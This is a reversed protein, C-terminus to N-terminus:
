FSEKGNFFLVLNFTEIPNAILDIFLISWISPVILNFTQNLYLQISSNRLHFSLEIFNRVKLVSGEKVCDIQIGSM